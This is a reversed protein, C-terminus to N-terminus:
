NSQLTFYGLAANSGGTTNANLASYGIATNRTGTNQEMTRYGWSTNATTANLDINGSPQNSVRIFLPNVDTTGLFFSSNTNSNGHLSWGQGTSVNQLQSGTHYWFSSTTTDYILLGKVAPLLKRKLSDMRPILIGKNGSKIDLMSNPDPTSGDTTIAVSQSLAPLSMLLTLSIIFSTTKLTLPLM